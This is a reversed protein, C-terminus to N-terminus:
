RVTVSFTTGDSLQVETTGATLGGVGANFQTGDQEYAPSFVAVAPDAVTADLGEAGTIVLYEGSALEIDKGRLEAPSLIQPTPAGEATPEAGQPNTLPAAPAPSESAGENGGDAPASAEAPVSAAAPADTPLAMSTPSAASSHVSPAPSAPASTEASEEGSSCATVALAAAVFTGVALATHSTRM